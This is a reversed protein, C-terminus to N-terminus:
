HLTTVSPGLFSGLNVIVIRNGLLVVSGKCRNNGTISYEFDYSRQLKIRGDEDRALKLGRIAVTDDLLMLDESNCVTKVAQIATVRVGLSDFWLWAFGGMALLLFIIETDYM